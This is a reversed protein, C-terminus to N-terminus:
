LRLPQERRAVHRELDAAQRDLAVREELLAASPRLQAGIQAEALEREVTEQRHALGGRQRGGDRGRREPQGLGPGAGDRGARAGPAPRVLGEREGREGEDISRFLTTYPFLTSRPPRRIMLFFFSLSCLMISKRPASVMIHM